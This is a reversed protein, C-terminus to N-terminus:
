RVIYCILLNFLNLKNGCGAHHINMFHLFNRQLCECLVYTTIIVSCEVLLNILRTTIIKWTTVNYQKGNLFLFVIRCNFFILVFLFM